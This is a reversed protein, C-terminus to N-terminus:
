KANIKHQWGKARIYSPDILTETKRLKFSNLFKVVSKTNHRAERRPPWNLIMTTIILRRFINHFISKSNTPNVLTMLSPVILLYLDIYSLRLRAQTQRLRVKSVAHKFGPIVELKAHQHFLHWILPKVM